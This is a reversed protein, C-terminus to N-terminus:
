EEKNQLTIRIMEARKEDRRQTTYDEKLMLSLTYPQINVLLRDITKAKITELVGLDIGMKVLSLHKMAEQSSIKRANTLIGYARFINDTLDLHKNDLLWQRQARESKIVSKTVTHVNKVIETESLGLSNQNSIQYLDGQAQSDEGYIGRLTLGFKQCTAVISPIKAMMTMAPLHVMVSARMATGLNTPCATLYGFQKDFGYPLKEKLVDDTEKAMMYADQMNFGGVIAQLRIHDEENIMISRMDDIIALASQENQGFEKSTLHSEVFSHRLSDPADALEIIKVNPFASIAKLITEKTEKARQITAIHPMPVNKLNRALRVRSSVAIDNETQTYAKM